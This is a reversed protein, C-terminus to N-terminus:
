AQELNQLWELCTLTRINDLWEEVSCPLSNDNPYFVGNWAEIQFTSQGSHIFNYGQYYRIVGHTVYIPPRYEELL